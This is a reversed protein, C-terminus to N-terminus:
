KSLVLPVPQDYPWITVKLSKRSSFVDNTVPFSVIITGTKTAGPPIKDEPTLPKQAHEKLAPFAQYYRDFDAVSAADDSYTGSSTELDAKMTHIYFPKDGNNQFTVTVAVLVSGQNPIEVATIDDVSGSASTHAKNLFALAGIVLLIAAVCIALIKTPPLNKKATGFEEGIDFPIQPSPAPEAM